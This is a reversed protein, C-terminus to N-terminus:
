TSAPVGSTGRNSGTLPTTPDNQPLDLGTFPPFRKIDSIRSDAGEMNSQGAFIFVRVTKSDNINDAATIQLSLLNYVIM